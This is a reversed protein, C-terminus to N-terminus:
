HLTAVNCALADVAKRLDVCGVPKLGAKLLVSRRVTKQNGFMENLWDSTTVLYEWKDANFPDLYDSRDESYFTFVWIDAYRCSRGLYRNECVLWPDKIRIDYTPNPQDIYGRTSMKGSCKVEVTTGDSTVVDYADWNIRRPAIGYLSKHVLNEATMVGFDEDRSDGYAWSFFGAVDIEMNDNM